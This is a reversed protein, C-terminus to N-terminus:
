VGGLGVPPERVHVGSADQAGVVGGGGAELVGVEVAVYDEHGVIGLEDASGVLVMGYYGVLLAEGAGGGHVDRVDRRGDHLAEAGADAPERVCGGAHVRHCGREVAGAHLGGAVGEEGAYLEEALYDALLYVADLPRVLREEWARPLSVHGWGWVLRRLLAPCADEAVRHRYGALRVEEAVEVRLEVAAM